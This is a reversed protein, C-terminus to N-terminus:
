IRASGHELPVSSLYSLCLEVAKPPLQTWPPPVLQLDPLFAPSVLAGGSSSAQSLCLCQGSTGSLSSMVATRATEYATGRWDSDKMLCVQRSLWNALFGPVQLQCQIFTPLADPFLATSSLYFGFRNYCLRKLSTVRWQVVSCQRERGVCISPELAGETLWYIVFDLMKLDSTIEPRSTTVGTQHNIYVWYLHPWHRITLM